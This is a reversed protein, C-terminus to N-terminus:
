GIIMNKIVPKRNLTSLSDVNRIDWDMMEYAILLWKLGTQIYSTIKQNYDSDTGKNYPSNM